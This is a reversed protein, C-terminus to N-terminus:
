EKPIHKKLFAMHNALFPLLKYVALFAVTSYAIGGLVDVVYHEGLYVASFWTGVPIILV